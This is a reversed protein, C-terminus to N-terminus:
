LLLRLIPELSVPPPTSQDDTPDTGKQYELINTAHDGDLDGHADDVLPNLGFGVEWGDPMGDNDTDSDQPDTGAQYEQLNTLGDGDPDLASDDVLPNLSHNVEWGDPMGDGDTDPNLPNTGLAEEQSDLLGDGDSDLDPVSNSALVLINGAPDFTYREHVNTSTNNMETIQGNQDYQFTFSAAWLGNPRGLLLIVSLAVWGSTIVLKKKVQM